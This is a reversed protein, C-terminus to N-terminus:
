LSASSRRRAMAGPRRVKALKSWSQATMAGGTFTFGFLALEAAHFSLCPPREAEARGLREMGEAVPCLPFCAAAPFPLGAAEGPLGQIRKRLEETPGGLGLALWGSDIFLSTSVFGGDLGVWASAMESHFSHLRQREVYAKDWASAALFVMEPFARVLPDGLARFLRGKYASLERAVNGPPVLCIIAM